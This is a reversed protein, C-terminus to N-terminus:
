HLVQGNRLYHSIVQRTKEGAEPGEYLEHFRYAIALVWESLTLEFKKKRSNLIVNFLGLATTQYLNVYNEIITGAEQLDREKNTWNDVM